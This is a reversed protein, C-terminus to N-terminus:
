IGKELIENRITEYSKKKVDIFDAHLNVALLRDDEADGFMLVRRFNQFSLRDRELLELVMDMSPKRKTKERVYFQNLRLEPHAKAYIFDVDPCYNWSSITVGRAQLQGRVISNIEEVRECTFYNRAVGQQNSVVYTKQSYKKQLDAIATVVPDKLKIQSRWIEDRGLYDVSEIITGDRDALILLEYNM